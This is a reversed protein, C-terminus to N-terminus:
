KRGYLDFTLTTHAPHFKSDVGIQRRSKSAVFAAASVHAVPKLPTIALNECHLEVVFSSTLNDL